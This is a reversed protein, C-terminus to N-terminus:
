HSDPKPKTTAPGGKKDRLTEEAKPKTNSPPPPKVPSNSNSGISSNSNTNSGSKSSSKTNGNAQNADNKNSVYDLRQRGAEADELLDAARANTSELAIAKKLPEIAERYKALKILVAGLETQYDTDDPKLKVAERFADEADEDETLKSYTRGLNFFAVDDKPNAAVWKKYVTVAKDFAKESKTKAKGEKSNAPPSDPMEGTQKKQMELLDYAIGLKFYAEGFDPNLKVAQEYAEIAKDTQNEDFLRDGEALAVNADTIEAIVLSPVAPAVEANAPEPVNAVEKKKCAFNGAALMVITFLVLTQKM